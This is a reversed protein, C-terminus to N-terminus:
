PISATKPIPANMRPALLARALAVEPETFLPDSAVARLAEKAGSVEQQTRKRMAIYFEARVKDVHRRSSKRLDDDSALYRGWRAATHWWSDGDAADALVRDVKGDATADLESELLMLWLAARIMAHGEIQTKFGLQLATRAAPLDQHVVAHGVAALVVEGVLTGTSKALAIARGLARSAMEREGYGHLARTLLLEARIRHAVNGRGRNQLVRSLAKSLESLAGTRDGRERLVEFALLHAAAVELPLAAADPLRTARRAHSLAEALKGSQRELTALELYGKLTPSEQLSEVLLQRARESEGTQLEIRAMLGRVTAASPKVRGRYRAREAIELVQQSAAHIRRASRPASADMQAHLSMEIVRMVGSLAVSTPDHGLADGLVLPAVEPMGYSALHDALMHGVRYSTPDRRYAELAIGWTVADFLRGDMKVDEDDLARQRFAKALLRWDEASDGTAAAQLRAFFPGDAVRGAAGKDLAVVAGQVRGHRLFVAAMTESGLQLAQYADLIVARRPAKRTRQYALNIEVARAVWRNIALEAGRLTEESPSLLARAVAIKKWVTLRQMATSPRTDALWKSLATHHEELEKRRPSGEPLVARQTLILALARGEDGLASFRKFAGDIAYLGDGDFMDHRAEGARVLYLAGIVADAGRVADDRRFIAAAHTLQRRVTGALLASREPSPKGDRLLRHVAAAFDGDRVDVPPLSHDFETPDAAGSRNHDCGLTGGCLLTWGLWLAAFHSRQLRRTASRM